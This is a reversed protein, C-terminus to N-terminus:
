PGGGGIDAGAGPTLRKQAESLEIQRQALVVAGFMAMTLIVGALELSAPFKGVLALGVEQINEPLAVAPLAVERTANDSLRVNVVPFGGILEVRRGSGAPIIEKMEPEAAKVAAELRGPMAELEVVAAALRRAPTPPPPLAAVGARGAIMDGLVALLLFGVFVAAAPERPYRDYEAPEQEQDPERTQQALMIVFLYTILIAGAYVIVVAFAMFEAELLLFIGASSLVVMVFALASYVPRQNTIVRVAAAVAIIAFLLFFGAPAGGGAGPWAGAGDGGGSLVEALAKFAWAVAGLGVIGAITKIFKAGPRLLLYLMVAGVVLATYLYLAM